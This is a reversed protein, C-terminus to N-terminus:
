VGETMFEGELISEAQRDQAVLSTLLLETM